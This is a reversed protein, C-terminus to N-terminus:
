IDIYHRHKKKILNRPHCFVEVRHQKALFIAAVAFVGKVPVLPLFVIEFQIALYNFNVFLIQVSLGCQFLFTMASSLM